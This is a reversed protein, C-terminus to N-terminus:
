YVGGDILGSLEIATLTGDVDANGSVQLKNNTLNQDTGILVDGDDIYFNMGVIRLNTSSINGLTIENNIVASSPEANAGIIINNSGETLINAVENGMAVNDSGDTVNPLADNGVAINGSGTFNVDSYTRYGLGLNKQIDNVGDLLENISLETVTQGGLTLSTTDISEVYATKWTKIETGIDFTNPTNPIIDSNVDASFIISDTNEDGLTIDGDATINGTAHLSGIIEVDGNLNIKDTETAPQLNIDGLVTKITSGNINVDDVSIEGAILATTNITGIVDIEYSPSDTKIGIRSNIVDLYLLDTEFALDVGDRQLNSKLLQGSIRGISM